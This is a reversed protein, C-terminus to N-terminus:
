IGGFNNAKVEDNAKVDRAASIDGSANLGGTGAGGQQIQLNGGDIHLKAAPANVGIGVDNMNRNSINIGGSGTTNERMKWMTTEKRLLTYSVMDDFHNANAPSSQAAYSADRFTADGNCNESDLATAGCPASLVGSMSRAGKLDPGHSVLIFQAPRTTMSAATNERLVTITGVGSNANYTAADQALVSTVAYTLKSGFPDSMMRYPLGLDFVPVAGILVTGAVAFGGQRGFNAATPGLAPNAPRPYCGNRELYSALAATVAEFTQDNHSRVQNKLYLQYPVLAAVALLGLIILGISIEILTFGENGKYNLRKVVTM